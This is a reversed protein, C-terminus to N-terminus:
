SAIRGGIRRSREDERRTLPGLGRRIAEIEKLALGRLEIQAQLCGVDRSTVSPSVFCSVTDHLRRLSSEIFDM